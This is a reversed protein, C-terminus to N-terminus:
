LIQVAGDLEKRMKFVFTLSDLGLQIPNPFLKPRSSKKHSSGRVRSRRAWSPRRSSIKERPIVGPVESFCPLLKQGGRNLSESLTQERRM